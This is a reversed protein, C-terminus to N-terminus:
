YYRFTINLRPSVAKATKLLSHKYNQQCGPMMYVVDGSYVSFKTTGSETTYIQRDNIMKKIYTGGNNTLHKPRIAFDRTGGLSISVVMNHGAEEDAHFGIHHDGYDYINILAYDFEKPIETTTLQALGQRVEVALQSLTPFQDWPYRPHPTLNINDKKPHPDATREVIISRKPENVINGYLKWQGQVCLPNFEAYLIDFLQGNVLNYLGWYDNQLIVQPQTQLCPIVVVEPEM